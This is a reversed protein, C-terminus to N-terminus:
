SCSKGHDPRAGQARAQSESMYQGSKTKGYWRDGQCHYVKSSTNVWVEGNGGGSAQAPVSRPRSAASPAIAASPASAVTPAPAPASSVPAAAAAKSRSRRSKTSTSSEASSSEASSSKASKASKTSKTSKNSQGGKSRDIGGHGRCAGRGGHASTTGDKCPVSTLSGASATSPQAMGAAPTLALGAAAAFAVVFSCRFRGIM